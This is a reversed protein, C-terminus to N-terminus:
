RRQDENEELRERLATRLSYGAGAALGIAGGALASLMIRRNLEEASVPHEILDRQARRLLFGRHRRTTPAGRWFEFGIYVLGGLILGVLFAGFILWLWGSLPTRRRREGTLEGVTKFGDFPNKPIETM